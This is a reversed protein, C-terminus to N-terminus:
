SLNLMDGWPGINIWKGEYPHSPTPLFLIFLFVILSIKMKIEGLTVHLYRMVKKILKVM